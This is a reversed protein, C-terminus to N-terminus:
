ARMRPRNAQARRQQERRVSDRSKKQVISGVEAQEHEQGYLSSLKFFCYWDSRKGVTKVDSINKGKAFVNALSSAGHFLCIFGTVVMIMTGTEM